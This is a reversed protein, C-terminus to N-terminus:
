EDKRPEKKINEEMSEDDTDELPRKVKSTSPGAESSLKHSEETLQKSNDGSVNKVFHERQEILEEKKDKTKSDLEENEKLHLDDETLKETTNNLQMKNFKTIFDDLTSDYKKM